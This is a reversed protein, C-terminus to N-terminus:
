LGMGEVWEFLILRKYTVVARSPTVEIHSSLRRVRAQEEPTLLRDATQWEYYQYEGM